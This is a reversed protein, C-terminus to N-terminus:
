LEAPARTGITQICTSPTCRASRQTTRRRGGWGHRAPTCSGVVGALEDVAILFLRPPSNNINSLHSATWADLKFGSLYAKPFVHAYTVQWASIHVAAAASPDDPTANRVTIM